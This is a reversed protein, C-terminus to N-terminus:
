LMGDPWLGWSWAEISESLWTQKLTPFNFQLWPGFIEIESYDVPSNVNIWATITYPTSYRRYYPADTSALGFPILVFDESIVM